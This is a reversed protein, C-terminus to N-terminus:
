ASEVVRTGEAPTHVRVRMYKQIFHEEIRRLADRPVEGLLDWALELSEHLSRPREGQNIFEREFRETFRLIKRESEGLGAMGIIATLKELEKGQAYLAYLQDQVQRHDERTKGKGIGLNM